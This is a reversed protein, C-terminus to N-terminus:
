CVKEFCCFSVNLWSVPLAEPAMELHSRSNLSHGQLGTSQNFHFRLNQCVTSEAAQWGSHFTHCSIHSGLNNKPQVEPQSVHNQFFEVCSNWKAFAQKKALIHFTKKFLCQLIFQTQRQTFSRPSLSLILLCIVCLCFTKLSDLSGLFKCDHLFSGIEPFFFQFTRWLAWLFPLQSLWETM